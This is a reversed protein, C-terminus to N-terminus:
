IRRIGLIPRCTNRRCLGMGSDDAARSETRLARRNGEATQRATSQAIEDVGEVDGREGLVRSPSFGYYEKVGVVGEMEKWGMMQEYILRPFFDEMLYLPKYLTHDFEGLVPIDREKALQVFRKVGLDSKFSRDNFPYVENSTSPNLM